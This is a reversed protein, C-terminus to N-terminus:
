PLRRQIVRLPDGCNGCSIVICIENLDCEFGMTCEDSQYYDCDERCYETQQSVFVRESGCKRCSPLPYSIQIKEDTFLTLEIDLTM